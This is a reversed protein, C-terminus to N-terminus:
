NLNSQMKMNIRIRHSRGPLGMSNAGPGILHCLLNRTRPGAQNAIDPVLVALLNPDGGVAQGARLGLRRHDRAVRREKVMLGTMKISNGKWLSGIDPVTRLLDLDAQGGERHHTARPESQDIGSKGAELRTMSTPTLPQKTMHIKM